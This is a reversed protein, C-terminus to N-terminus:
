EACIDWVLYGMTKNGLNMVAAKAGAKTLATFVSGFNVNLKKNFISVPKTILIGLINSM